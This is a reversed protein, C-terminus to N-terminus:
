STRSQDCRLQLASIDVDGERFESSWKMVRSNGNKCFDLYELNDIRM